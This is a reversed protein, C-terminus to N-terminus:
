CQGGLRNVCEWGWGAAGFGAGGAGGGGAVMAIRTVSSGLGSVASM